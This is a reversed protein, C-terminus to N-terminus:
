SNEYFKFLGKLPKPHKKVIFFGNRNNLVFDSSACRSHSICVNVVAQCVNSQMYKLQKFSFKPQIM